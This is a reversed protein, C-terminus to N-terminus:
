VRWEELEVDTLPEFLEEGVSFQGKLFGLERKELAEIPVLRVYPVGVKAIIIEQGQKTFITNCMILKNSLVLRTLKPELGRVPDSQGSGSLFQPDDQSLGNAM